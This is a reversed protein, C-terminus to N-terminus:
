KRVLRLASRVKCGFSHPLPVAAVCNGCELEFLDRERDANEVDMRFVAEALLSALLDRQHRMRALDLLVCELESSEPAPESPAADDASRSKYFDYGLLGTDRSDEAERDDIDREVSAWYRACPGCMSEDAEIPADCEPCENPM